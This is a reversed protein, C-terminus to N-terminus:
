LFLSIPILRLRPMGGCHRRLAKTKTLCFAQFRTSFTRQWCPGNESQCTLALQAVENITSM